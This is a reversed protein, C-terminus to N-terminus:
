EAAQDRLAKHMLQATERAQRVQMRAVRTREAELAAEIAEQDGPTM